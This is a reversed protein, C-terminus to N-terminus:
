NETLKGKNYKEERILKGHHNYYKWKGHKCLFTQTEEYIITEEYTEPDYVHITDIGNTFEYIGITKLTGDDHFDRYPGRYKGAEYTSLNTLIGEANWEKWTGSKKGNVYYGYESHFGNQHFEIYEGEKTRNIESSISQIKGNPYYTSRIPQEKNKIYQSTQFLYYPASEISRWTYAFGNKLSDKIEYVISDQVGITM